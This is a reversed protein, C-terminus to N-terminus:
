LPVKSVYMISLEPLSNPIFFGLCILGSLSLTVIQSKTDQHPMSSTVKVSTLQFLGPSNVFGSLIICIKYGYPVQKIYFPAVIRGTGEFCTDVKTVYKENAITLHLIFAVLQM